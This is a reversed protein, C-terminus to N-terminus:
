KRHADSKVGKNLKLPLASLRNQDPMQLRNILCDLFISVGQQTPIGACAPVIHGHSAFDDKKGLILFTTLTAM